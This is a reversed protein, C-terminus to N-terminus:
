LSYYQIVNYLTSYKSIHLNIHLPFFPLAPSIVPSTASFTDYFLYNLSYYIITMMKRDSMKQKLKERFLEFRDQWTEALSEAMAV